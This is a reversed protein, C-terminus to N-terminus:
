ARRTACWSRFLEAGLAFKPKAAPLQSKLYATFDRYAAIAKANNRPFDAKLKPDTVRRIRRSRGARLLRRLRRLLRHRVASRGRGVADGPEQACGCARSAGRRRVEHLSCHASPRPTNARSTFTRISCASTSRRTGSRSAAKDLWYLDRDIVAVIYDRQFREAPRCGSEFYAVAKRREARLREIEAAIGAASTDPLQGDFEHRGSGVAFDPHARFYSETFEDVYQTWREGAGGGSDCGAACLATASVHLAFTARPGIQRHIFM